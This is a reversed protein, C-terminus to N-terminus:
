REYQYDELAQVCETILTPGQYILASFVQVLTAGAKIKNIADEGSAIGGVGIIPIKGDLITAFKRIIDTSIDRVPEGSLGGAENAYQM